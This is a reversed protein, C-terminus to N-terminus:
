KQTTYHILFNNIRYNPVIFKVAGEEIARKPMGFIKSTEKSEAITIGRAKKIDNLGAVGDRLSGTLIVGITLNNYIKVASFFLKDICPMGHYLHTNASLKVAPENNILVIEMNKGAPCFYAIGPLVHEGDKAIKLNIRCKKNLKEVFTDYCYLYSAVHLTIMIPMSFDGPIKRLVSEISKFGGTSGGIVVIGNKASYNKVEM